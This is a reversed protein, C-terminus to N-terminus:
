KRNRAEIINIGLIKFIGLEWKASYHARARQSDARTCSQLNCSFYYPLRWGTKRNNGALYTYSLEKRGVTAQTESSQFLCLHSRCVQRTSLSAGMPPYSSMSIQVLRDACGLEIALRLALDSTGFRRRKRVVSNAVAVCMMLM